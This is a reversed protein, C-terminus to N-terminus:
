IVAICSSSNSNSLFLTHLSIELGCLFDMTPVFHTQRFLCTSFMFSDVISQESVVSGKGRLHRRIDDLERRFEDRVQSMINDRLQRELNAELDRANAEIGRIVGQLKWELDDHVARLTDDMLQPLIFEPLSVGLDSLSRTRGEAAAFALAGISVAPM